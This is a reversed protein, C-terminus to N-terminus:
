ALSLNKKSISCIQSDTKSNFYNRASGEGRFVGIPECGEISLADPENFIKKKMVVVVGRPLEEILIFM